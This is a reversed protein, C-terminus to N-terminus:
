AKKNSRKRSYGLLGALGAGFLLMTSPEPVPASAEGSFTAGEVRIDNDWDWGGEYGTFIISTFLGDQTYDLVSALDINLTTTAAKNFIWWGGLDYYQTTLVSGGDMFSASITLTEDQPDESWFDFSLSASLVDQTAPNFQDLIDFAFSTTTNTYLNVYDGDDFTGYLNDSFPIALASGASFLSIAVTTLLIKKM